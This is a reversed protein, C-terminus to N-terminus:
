AAAPEFHEKAFEEGKLMGAKLSDILKVKAAGLFDPFQAWIFENDAFKKIYNMVGLIIMNANRVDGMESAMQTAPVEIINVNEPPNTVEVLSSNVFLYGGPEVRNKFKEYSPQNMVVVTSAVPVMPSAIPDDSLRVSCNATGGRMEAGYSPIYTVHCGNHMEFFCFLKGLLMLGQGGFGALIMRENMILM